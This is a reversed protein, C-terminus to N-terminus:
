YDPSDKPFWQTRIAIFESAMAEYRTSALDFAEQWAARGDYGWRHMQEHLQSIVWWPANALNLALRGTPDAWILHQSCGIALLAPDSPEQASRIEIAYELLSACEIRLHRDGCKLVCVSLEGLLAPLYDDNPDSEYALIHHRILSLWLSVRVPMSMTRIGPVQRGLAHGVADNIGDEDQHVAYAQLSLWLDQDLPSAVVDPLLLKSLNIDDQIPGFDDPLIPMLRLESEVGLNGLIEFCSHAHRTFLTKM